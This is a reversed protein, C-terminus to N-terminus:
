EYDRAGIFSPERPKGAVTLGKFEITVLTGRALPHDRDADTLGTGVKFEPSGKRPWKLWYAGLRGRHKGKGPEYGTIKAEDRQKVVVKLLEATRTARYPSGPARIM